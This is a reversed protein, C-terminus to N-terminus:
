SRSKSASVWQWCPAPAPESVTFERAHELEPAYIDAVASSFQHYEHCLMLGSWRSKQVVNAALTITLQASMAFFVFVPPQPLRRAPRRLNGRQGRRRPDADATPPRPRSATDASRGTMPFTTPRRRRRIRGAPHLYRHRHVRAPHRLPPRHALAWPPGHPPHMPPSGAPPHPRHSHAASHLRPSPRTRAAAPKRVAVAAPTAVTEPDEAAAGAAVVEVAEAAAGAARLRLLRRLLLHLCPSLVQRLRGFGGQAVHARGDISWASSTAATGAGRGLKEIKLSGSM